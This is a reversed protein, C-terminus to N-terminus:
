PTPPCILTAQVQNLLIPDRPRDACRANYASVRENYLAVMNQYESFLTGSSRRYAADRQDLLQRFQAVASPDDVNLTARASQLRADADAVERRSAEYARERDVRSAALADVARQLCLCGAIHAAEPSQPLPVQAAAPVLGAWSLAAAVCVGIVAGLKFFRM